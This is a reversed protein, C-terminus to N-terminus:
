QVKEEVSFRALGLPNARLKFLKLCLDLVSVYPGEDEETEESDDQNDFMVFDENDVENLDDDCQPDEV